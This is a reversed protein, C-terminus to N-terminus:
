LLDRVQVRSDVGTSCLGDPLRDIPAAMLHRCDLCDEVQVWRTRGTKGLGPCAVRGDTVQRESGRCVIWDVTIPAM